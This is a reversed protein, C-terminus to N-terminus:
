DFSYFSSILSVLVAYFVVVLNPAYLIGCRSGYTGGLGVDVWGIFDVDFDV